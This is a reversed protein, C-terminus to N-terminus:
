VETFRLRTLSSTATFSFAMRAWQGGISAGLPVDHSLILAGAGSFAEARLWTVNTSFRIGLVALIVRYSRNSVTDFTQEIWGGTPNEKEFGISYKGEYSPWADANKIWSLSGDAGGVMWGSIRTDGAPLVQIGGDPLLDPSEFSGNQFPAAPAM